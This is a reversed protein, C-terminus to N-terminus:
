RKNWYEYIMEIFIKNLETKTHKSLWETQEIPLILKLNIKEDPMEVKRIEELTIGEELNPFFADNETVKNFDEFDELSDVECFLNLQPLGGSWTKLHMIFSLVRRDELEIEVILNDENKYKRVVVETVILDLELTYGTSGEFIYIASNFLHINEGDIKVSKVGVM